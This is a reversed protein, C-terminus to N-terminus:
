EYPYKPNVSIYNFFFDINGIRLLVVNEFISNSWETPKKLMTNCTAVLKM